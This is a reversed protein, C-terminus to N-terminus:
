LKIVKVYPKEGPKLKNYVDQTLDLETQKMEPIAKELKEICERAIKLHEVAKEITESGKAKILAVNFDIVLDKIHESDIM